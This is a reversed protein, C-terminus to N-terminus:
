SYNADRRFRGDCSYKGNSDTFGRYTTFWRRAKVKVGSVGVYSNLVHDFVRVVGAPRWKSKAAMPNEIEDTGLNGTLRLSEDVLKYIVEKSAFKSESSAITDFDEDPVFLEELLEYEIDKPLTHGLPVSAYQYTP